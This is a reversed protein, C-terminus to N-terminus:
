RKSDAGGQLLESERIEDVFAVEIAMLPLTSNRNEAGSKRYGFFHAHSDTLGPILFRKRGDIVRCGRPAHAAATAGAFSISSGEVVVTEHPLV